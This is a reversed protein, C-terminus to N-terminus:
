MAGGIRHPRGLMDRLGRADVTPSYYFGQEYTCGYEKLLQVQNSTEVGEAILKLDLNNAIKILGEILYCSRPNTEMQWVFLRELKLVDVPLDLINNVGSYGTGFENLVFEIGMDSLEQMVINVKQLSNILVSETIEFALKKKPIRYIDLITQLEQLFQDQLFQVPSVPVAISEFEIGEDLLFRIEECAKRIAFNNVACIQGSDEAIPIFEASGIVGFEASSIQLYCEARAFLGDSVRLTPRFRTEIKDATLADNILKAIKRRRYLKKQLGSDFVALANQGKQSAETVAYDLSKLLEEPTEAFDPYFVLGLSMACMYDMDGIHWAKEFKERIQQAVDNARMFNQQNLILIFEVGGSRFLEAGEIERLFGIVQRLFMEAYDRGFTDNFLKFNELYLKLIAGHTKKEQLIKGLAELCLLSNPSELEDRTVSIATTEEVKVMEKNDNILGFLM